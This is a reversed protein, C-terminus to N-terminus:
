RRPSPTLPTPRLSRLYVPDYRVLGGIEIRGLYVDLHEKRRLTRVSMGLFKAAQKQTWFPEDNPRVDDSDAM